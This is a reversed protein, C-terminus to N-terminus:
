FLPPPIEYRLVNKVGVESWIEVNQKSIYTPISRIEM